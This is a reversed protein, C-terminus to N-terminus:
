PERSAPIFLRSVGTLSFGDLDQLVPLSFDGTRGIAVPRLVGRVIEYRGQNGGLISYAAEPHAKLFLLYRNGPTSLPQSPDLFSKGGSTGGVEAVTLTEGQLADDGKLVTEVRMLTDTVLPGVHAAKWSPLSNLDIEPPLIRRSKLRQDAQAIVILDSAEALAPVDPYVPYDALITGATGDPVVADPSGPVREMYLGALFAIVAGVLLTYHVPKM